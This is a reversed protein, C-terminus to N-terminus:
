SFKKKTHECFQEYDIDGTALALFKSSFDDVMRCSLLIMYKCVAQSILSDMFPTIVKFAILGSEQDFEFCGNLMVCNAFCVAKAMVDRREEKVVFPLPSRLYIIQRDAAVTLGLRISLSEGTVDTAVFLQEDNSDYSWDLSEMTQKITGYIAKAESEKSM